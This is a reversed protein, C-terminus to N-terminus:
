KGGFKRNRQEFIQIAELLDEESFDPWYKDIFLFETYALQWLLFNSIRLEGGPRILLDPEPEGKTYLNDSILNENIDEIKIEGSQVRTSINKVAEVIEARGGYNFAINLTLGTNSKSKEVINYIKKKLNDSLSDIDGLARVRINRLSDRNLFRDLYNELLIMLAGVEEKARKWNETSFAYVTLYELGIQNAFKAIKELTEAGQKHGLRTDLGREKAWRRNGDMIIAIHKPMLEKDIDEITVLIENRESPM